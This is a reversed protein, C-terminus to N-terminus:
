LKVYNDIIYKIPVTKTEIADTYCREGDVSTFNGCGAAPNCWINSDGKSNSKVPPVTLADHLHVYQLSYVCCLRGVSGVVQAIYCTVLLTVLYIVFPQAMKTHINGVAVTSNIQQQLHFAPHFPVTPCQV